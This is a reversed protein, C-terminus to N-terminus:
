FLWKNCVKLSVLLSKPIHIVNRVKRHNGRYCWSNETFISLFEMEMMAFYTSRGESGETTDVVEVCLVREGLASSLHATYLFGVGLPMQFLYQHFLSIESCIWLSHKKLTSKETEPVSATDCESVTAIAFRGTKNVISCMTTNLDHLHDPYLPFPGRAAGTCPDRGGSVHMKVAQSPM